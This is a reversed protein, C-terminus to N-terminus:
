APGIAFLFRQHFTSPTALTTPTAAV